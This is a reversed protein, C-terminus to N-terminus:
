AEPGRFRSFRPKVATAPAPGQIVSIRAITDPGFYGNLRRRLTEAAFEVSAAAAGHPVIIELTRGSAGGTMRGPRCLKSLEPGALETWRVAIDPDVFRTQRALDAILASAARALPPAAARPAKTRPATLDRLPPRRPYKM